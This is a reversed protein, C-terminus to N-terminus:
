LIGFVFISNVTPTNARRHLCLAVADARALTTCFLYPAFSSYLRPPNSDTHENSDTPPKHGLRLLLFASWILEELDPTRNFYIRVTM